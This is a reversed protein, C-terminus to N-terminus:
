QVATELEEALRWLERNIRLDMDINKVERSRFRSGDSRVQRIGGRMLNEQTSNFVNWLTPESQEWRRPTLVEKPDVEVAQRDFRLTIAADAFALQEDRKLTIARWRERTEFTAPISATFHRVAAEIFFAADGVHPLTLKGQIENWVVLGNGCVLELLGAFLHLASQGNHSHKVLIEPTADRSRLEAHQLRVMHGQFGRNEPKRVRAEIVKAPHWDHEAFADLVDKTSIFRYAESTKSPHRNEQQITAYRTLEM